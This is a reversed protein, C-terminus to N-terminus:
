QGNIVSPQPAAAPTKARTKAQETMDSLASAFSGLSLNLTYDKDADSIKITADPSATGWSDLVDKGIPGQVYCLRQDCRVFRLKPSTFTSTQLILGKQLAVGLPVGIMLYYQNNQSPINLVAINGVQQKTTKETLVQAMQCPNPSDQAICSVIWPGVNKNYANAVQGQAAPAALAAALALGAVLSKKM